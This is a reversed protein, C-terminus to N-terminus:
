AKIEEIQNNLIYWLYGRVKKDPEMEKLLDMYERVQKKYEDNKQGFKFDVVDITDKGYMVRDPRYTKYKGMERDYKKSLIPCENYLTKSGDFWERVQPLEFAKEVKKIIIEKESTEQLLGETELSLIVKQM